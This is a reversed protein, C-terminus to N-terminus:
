HKGPVQPNVRSRMPMDIEQFADCALKTAERDIRWAGILCNGFLPQDRLTSKHPRNSM